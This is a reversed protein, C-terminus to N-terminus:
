MSLYKKFKNIEDIYMNNIEDPIDINNICDCLIDYLFINDELSEELMIVDLYDNNILFDIVKYICIFDNPVNSSNNKIEM